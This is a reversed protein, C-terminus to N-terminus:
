SGITRSTDSITLRPAMLEPISQLLPRVLADLPRSYTGTGRVEWSPPAAREFHWDSTGLVGSVDQAYRPLYDYTLRGLTEWLDDRDDLHPRVRLDATGDELSLTVYHLRPTDCAGALKIAKLNAPVALRELIGDVTVSQYSVEM